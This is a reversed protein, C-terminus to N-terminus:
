PEIQETWITRIVRLKREITREACGLRAAIEATTYGEMKWLAVSRLDGGDLLDLLRRCEDAFQAAFEPTPQPDVIEDQDPDLEAPLDAAFSSCAVGRGGRKQRNTKRALSLAKRTTIVVLLRWLDERDCLEPFHRNEARRCFSDFACLAVDEEDECRRPTGRLMKRSLHLLRQFYREWLQRAAKHDGAKLAHIWHTVSGTTSM